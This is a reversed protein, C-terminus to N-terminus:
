DRLACFTDLQMQLVAQICDPYDSNLLGNVYDSGPLANKWRRKKDQVAEVLDAEKQIAALVICFVSNEIPIDINADIAHM